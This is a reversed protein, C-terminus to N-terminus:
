TTVGHEIQGLLQEVRRVGPETDAFQLPTEDGLAFNPERLWERAEESGGLVDAARRYLRVLRLARESEDPKLSGGKRRRNLTRPSIHLVGALDDVTLDLETRLWDITESPLGDRIAEILERDGSEASPLYSPLSATSM